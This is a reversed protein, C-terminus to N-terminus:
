AIESGELVAELGGIEFVKALGLVEAAAGAGDLRAGFEGPSGLPTTGPEVWGDPAPSPSSLLAIPPAPLPTM